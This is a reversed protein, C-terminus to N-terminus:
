YLTNVIQIEMEELIYTHVYNSCTHTYSRIYQIAGFSSGVTTQVNITCSSAAPHDTLRTKNDLPSQLASQGVLSCSSYYIYLQDYVPYVTCSGVGIKHRNDMTALLIAPLVSSKAVRKYHAFRVFAPCKSEMKTLNLYGLSSRFQAAHVKDGLNTHKLPIAIRTYTWDTQAISYESGHLDIFFLFLMAVFVRLILPINCEKDALDVLSLPM